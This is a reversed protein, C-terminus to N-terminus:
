ILMGLAMEEFTGMQNWDMGACDKNKYVMLRNMSNLSYTFFFTALSWGYLGM